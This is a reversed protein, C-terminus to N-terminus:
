LLPNRYRSATPIAPAVPIRPWEEIIYRGVVGSHYAAGCAPIVIRRLNQLEQDSLGLSELVLHGHRVRDGLTEKVADPQEYIEKLMFTEYGSKEAAEDDWDVEITERVIEGNEVDVFSGGQPTIAVIEGDDILQIKRTEGLFAVAAP